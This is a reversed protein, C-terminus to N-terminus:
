KDKVILMSAPISAVLAQTTSGVIGRMEGTQGHAGMVLIDAKNQAVFKVIEDIVSGERIFTEIKLGDRGAEKELSDLVSQANSRLTELISFYPNEATLEQVEHPFFFVRQDIVYVIKLEAHFLKALEMGKSAAKLSLKSGDTAVAIKKYM